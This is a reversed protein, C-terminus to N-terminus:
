AASKKLYKEKCGPSCLHIIGLEMIRRDDWRDLFRVARQLSRASKSEIDYGLIWEDGQVRGHHAPKLAGCQDCTIRVM